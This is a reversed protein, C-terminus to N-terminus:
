KRLEPIDPEIHITINVPRSIEANVAKELEESIGHAETVNLAPDVLIHFDLFVERGITRSRLKHCQKIKKNANIVSKIHEITEEDVARETMEGLCEVLVKGGAFIIMLGVAIAAVEDAYSFGFELSIFGIVVAVSSLADSRHHWANAYLLPSHTRVATKKTLRYLWEKAGVSLLAALLVVIHPVAIKGAAIDHAAFYIMGGGVLALVLAVLAAAYTEIWGHGYPHRADPGKSGLRVGVLVVVDTALDSLSHIGDAILSMSGALLGIVVKIVALAVNVVIGINTVSRIQRGASEIKSDIM